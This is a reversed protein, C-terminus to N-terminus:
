RLGRFRDTVGLQVTLCQTCYALALTFRRMTALAAKQSDSYNSVVDGEKLTTGVYVAASVSPAVPVALLGLLLYGGLSAIRARLSTGM